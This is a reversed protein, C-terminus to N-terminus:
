TRKQPDGYGGNKDFFGYAECYRKRHARDRFIPRGDKTYNASIGMKHDFEMCQPIQSPHCAMAESVLPWGSGPTTASDGRITRDRKATVGLVRIREPIRQTPHYFREELLTGDAKRYQVLPM